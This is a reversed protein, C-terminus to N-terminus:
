QGGLSLPRMMVNAVIIPRKRHYLGCQSSEEILTYPLRPIASAISALLRRELLSTPHFFVSRLGEQQEERIIGEGPQSLLLRPPDLSGFELAMKEHDLTVRSAHINRRLHEIEAAVNLTLYRDM